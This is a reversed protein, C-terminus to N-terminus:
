NTKEKKDKSQPAAKQRDLEAHLFARIVDDLEANPQKQAVDVIVATLREPSFNKVIDHIRDATENDARVRAESKQIGKSDVPSRLHRELSDSVNFLADLLTKTAKDPQQTVVTSVPISSTKTGKDQAASTLLM